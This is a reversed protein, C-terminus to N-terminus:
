CRVDIDVNMVLEAHGLNLEQTRGRAAERDVGSSTNGLETFEVAWNKERWLFASTM